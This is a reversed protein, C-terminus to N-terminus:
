VAEEKLARANELRSTQSPYPQEKIKSEGIGASTNTYTFPGWITQQKSLPKPARLAKLMNISLTKVPDQPSLIQYQGGKGCM